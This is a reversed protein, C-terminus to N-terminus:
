KVILKTWVAGPMAYLFLLFFIAMIAILIGTVIGWKYNKWVIFKFSKFPSTFWLFSTEPRKPQELLPYQNPEERGKGAPKALAEEENLIELELELKGAIEKKNNALEIACPWWGKLRRQEFLSVNIKKNECAEFQHLGCKHSEKAPKIMNNLDLSVQGLFDDASFKDNDWIQLTLVPPIKTESNDLSWFHEKRKICVKQEAPLYDFDFVFRWNFNGEGDMSRYHVDTRQKDKELGQLWGKVYIDSMKEGNISMDDCPVESTNWVVCRLIYKKTIRPKIDFAPGPSGLSRPFIDVWMKIRGQEIGPQIPNYLRRTEIHEPVLKFEHLVHLCLQEEKPGLHPNRVHSKDFKELNFTTKDIMLMIDGPGPPNFDLNRLRCVDELIQSPRRSDRWKNPGSENYLLPLGCTARYKTLLRNELDIWTEGIIDDSTFLDYDKVRICIDKQIPLVVKLEFMQGFDPSISNPIYNDRSNIKTKGAEIEIYPDSKGNPDKSQLDIGKVIYVRVICEERHMTVVNKYILNDDVNQCEDPIPYIKFMGKFEGVIEHEEESNTKGRYLEFTECFDTFNEFCTENEIEHHYIKIIEYGKDLYSGAKRIEGLSAYYKCWWDIDEEFLSLEAASYKEFSKELRKEKNKNKVKKFPNKFKKKKHHKMPLLEGESDDIEVISQEPSQFAEINSFVFHENARDVRFRSLSRIVHVGVTPKRGFNRHDLININMPPVYIEEKPIMIDFFLVPKSFNPNQKLNKIIQSKIKHGDCEFIVQPCEVESLQFTKMNRVGWSLIEIITRQLEPRIDNPVRYLSGERPPLPPLSKQPNNDDILFLEFSALLEGADESDRKLQFWELKNPSSRNTQDRFKPTVLCRGLFDPKGNYDHDFVEIMIQPPNIAIENPNGHIEVSDFILTQDWTPSLCKSVIETKISQTLFIVQAYPDSLSTDTDAAMLSRAQYIHARLQYRNSDKYKLFMRPANLKIVESKSESDSSPKTETEFRFVPTLDANKDVPQMARHWRRKRVTDTSCEKAHFKTSFLKSYEWGDKIIDKQIEKKKNKNSDNLVIIVSRNRIWRRRRNLHYMKESPSWGGMSPEICYEWGENDVARNIDVTWEDDWKWNEHLQFDYKSVTKEGRFDAWFYPKKEEYGSNWSAGPLIRCNQEYIEEMYRTHGADKDFFLSLEPAIEWDGKWEWGIPLNFKEKPLSIKGTLDSFEPRTLNDYGWKRSTWSYCQNEYTEAYICIAGDIEENIHTEIWDKEDRELGLWLKIRIQAPIIEKKAKDEAEKGPWKLIITQIKNCLEGRCENKASFLIENAPIRFYATRENGCLMWIIVDPISNQPEHEIQTLLDHMKQMEDIVTNMDKHPLRECKVVIQHLYKVRLKRLLRDLENPHHKGNLPELLSTSAKQRINEIMKLISVALDNLKPSNESPRIENLKQQITQLCRSIYNKIKKIQNLAELRYSIDEWYSVIQMCPKINGWPLFYYSCGDFVANSPPTTSSSPPLNEDLKNGYNGISVEFEIPKEIEYIMIADLFAAHLKYKKRHLFPEVRVIETNKLDNIPEKPLEGVITQLELLVRGRYSVGESKGLNLEDLRTPLESYERPSGYLNVFCPGFTPLFGTDSGSMDSILDLSLFKTAVLDDASNRDWDKVAITIKDCMSPFKLGIKLEQNWEPNADNYIIKSQVLRGAFSFVVYPDVLEKKQDNAGFISKVGQFFNSDMRPIDEARFVKLVFTAPRLDMGAPKLLNSEMDDEISPEPNSPAEDGPGLVNISVKLYGKAGCMLDNTDALLVWKNILSHNQQDYVFGIDTKFSGILADKLFNISNYVEFEITKDFLDIQSINNFNYFFVENWHPSNTSRLTKTHKTINHCKIRCMPHINNGDLQRAHFIKIRIQFDQNKNSRQKLDQRKLYLDSNQPDSSNELQNLVDGGNLVSTSKIFAPAGAPCRYELSLFLKTSELKNNDPDTLDVQYKLIGHNLLQGLPVIGKALLKNAGINEYDKIEVEIIDNHNLPVGKLDFELKENWVPNQESKKYSTKKKIGQYFVSVYPDPKTKIKPLNTANLIEISLFFNKKETKDNLENM